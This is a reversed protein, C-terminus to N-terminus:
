NHIGTPESLTLSPGQRKFDGYYKAKEAKEPYQQIIMKLILTHLNVRKLTANQFNQCITITTSGGAGLYMVGWQFFTGQTGKTTLGEGM